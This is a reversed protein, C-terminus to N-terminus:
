HSYNLRTSKRDTNVGISATGGTVDISGTALVETVAAVNEQTETLTITQDDVTGGNTTEASITFPTGAVAAQITITSGVAAATYVTRANVRSALVTAVGDNDAVTTAITDWATVREGDYFHFIDGGSFEAIAYIKGDFNETAIIGTMDSGDPDQLRQYEVGTPLDNPESASGFVYLVGAVSHMGFTGEPLTYTEVFSKAKEIEGGRTIHVNTAGQLSGPKAMVAMRTKDLGGKFDEIVLYAM